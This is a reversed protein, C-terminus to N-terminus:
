WRGGMMGPGYGGSGYGGPGYGGPGYGGSGYGRGGMMGGRGMMRGHGFAATFDYTKGNIVAKTVLFYAKDQGPVAPLEYGDVHVADGAKIGDTYAYYYFRPMELVYAKDKAQLVPYEGSFALKGDLSKAVPAQGQIQGPQAGGQGYPQVGQATSLGVVILALILGLSFKKM